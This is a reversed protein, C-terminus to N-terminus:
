QTKQEIAKILDGVTNLKKLEKLKFQIDFFREVESIMTMHTLSSWSEIHDASLDETIVLKPENFVTKFIETLQDIIKNKEM